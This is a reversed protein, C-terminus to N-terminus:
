GGFGIWAICVAFFAALCFAELGIRLWSKLAPLTVIEAERMSASQQRAFRYDGPRYDAHAGIVAQTDCDSPSYDAHPRLYPSINTIDAM